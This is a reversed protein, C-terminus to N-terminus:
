TRHTVHHSSFVHAYATAHLLPDTPQQSPTPNWSAWRLRMIVRIMHTVHGCRDGLRCSPQQSLTRDWREVQTVHRSNSYARIRAHMCMCTYMYMRACVHRAQVSLACLVVRLPRPSFFLLCSLSLFLAEALCANLLRSRDLLSRLDALTAYPKVKIVQSVHGGQNHSDCSPQDLCACIRECAPLIQPSSPSCLARGSEVKIVQTVHGGRYCAPQKFLGVCAHMCVHLCM